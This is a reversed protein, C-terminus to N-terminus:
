MRGGRGGRPPGGRGRFGGGYGRDFGGRPPYPRGGFGGRMSNSPSVPGGAANAGTGPGHSSGGGWTGRPGTPPHRPGTPPARGHHPPADRGPLAPPIDPLNQYKSPPTQQPLTHRPAVPSIQPYENDAQRPQFAPSPLPDRAPEDVSGRPVFNASSRPVFAPTSALNGGAAPQSNFYDPRSSESRPVFASSRPTDGAASAGGPTFPTGIPTTNASRASPLHELFNLRAPQTPQAPAPAPAPADVAMDDAKEEKPEEKVAVEEDGKPEPSKEKKRIKHSALYDKLSVKKPPPPTPEKPPPSAEKVPSAEEKAEEIAAEAPAPTSERPAPQELEPAPTPEKPEPTPEKAIPPAEKIPAPSAQKEEPGPKSVSPAEKAVVPPEPPPPPSLKRTPKPMEKKAKAPKPSHDEDESDKVVKNRRGARDSTSKRSPKRAPTDDEDDSDSGAAKPAKPRKAPKSSKAKQPSPRAKPQPKPTAPEDDSAEEDSSRIIKRRPIAKGPRRDSAGSAKKKPRDKRQSPGPSLVRRRHSSAPKTPSSMEGDSGLAITVTTANSAYGEDIEEEGEEHREPRDPPLSSLASSPPALSPPQPEEPTRPAEAMDVDEKAEQSSLLPAEATTSPELEPEVPEAATSPKVDEEMPEAPEAKAIEDVDMAEDNPAPLTAEPASTTPPVTEVPEDVDAVVPASADSPAPPEVDMRDDQVEHAPEEEVAAAEDEPPHSPQRESPPLSPRKGDAEDDEAKTPGARWLEWEGASRFRKAQSYADREEIERKRWGRVAGILEGLDIRKRARAGSVGHFTQGMVQRRMQAFACDTNVTCACSQFTSFINTLIADFKTTLHTVTEPDIPVTPKNASKTLTSDIVARLTHVVHQDDWEWGLVIEENKSLERAAFIGFHLKQKPSDSARFFVPRIVANPHCGSRVFRMENGYSRADLMLNVPPGVSHVYPKPIGLASYQNIPDKRYTAADLVECRYEGLFAGPPLVESVFVGYITPRAYINQSPEIYKLPLYCSASAPDDVPRLYTQAALSELDSGALYVPPLPPALINFDAGDVGSEPSQRMDGTETPSPLGSEHYSSKSRRPEEDVDVWEQRLKAIARSALIGRVLNDKLPTYELEWPQVRFYDDEDGDRGPQASDKSRPKTPNPKRKPKAPPAM